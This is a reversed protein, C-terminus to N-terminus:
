LNEIIGTAFESCKVLTAGPMLRHFDYTVRKQEITRELAKEILDASENWGLYRLLMAGSLIVSGPNVKDQGAYKPATGHTAEFCAFGDGVNGGPAIGIGGVQAALADSIYDGNLNPTCVVDYESPRLLAQQFMSDAIRDKILLKSKWKGGGHTAGIAAITKEVEATIKAKFEPPCWKEAVTPEFKEANAEVSLGQDMNDLIWSERETVVDARFEQTAVEYGWERFAGETFKMINGKHILSVSKRKHELAFVIGARVLRKTNKASMPKVGFGSEVDVAKAKAGPKTGHELLGNVMRGFLRAEATGAKWEIGAYVDEVNERYIVMDVDQPRTVPAPVGKYWKVPRVCQYLDMKQRLTVNLSRIGEGVPTTLPGKISVRYKVLADVTANPLWADAAKKDAAQAYAKEGALVELWEIKRKGGYAKAVAADFVRQSARWIDPGTGDGEIFPITPNDPVQLKGGEYRIEAM